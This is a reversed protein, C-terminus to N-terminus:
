RTNVTFYLKGTNYDTGGYSTQDCYNVFDQDLFYDKKSITIKVNGSVSVNEFKSTLGLTIDIKATSFDEEFWDYRVLNGFIEPDWDFVPQSYEHWETVCSFIGCDKWQSRDKSPFSKRLSAFGSPNKSALTVIFYLEPNGDLYHEAERMYNMTTFRARSIHDKGPFRDRDCEDSSSGVEGITGGSDSCEEVSKILYYAHPYYTGVTEVENLCSNELGFPLDKGSRKGEPLAITRENNSIVLILEDPEKRLDLEVKKGNRYAPLIAEQKLDVDPPRYVVMPIKSQIDWDEATHGELSPMALQLLPYSELMNKLMGSGPELDFLEELKIEDDVLADIHLALLFNYDGDFKRILEDKIYKRTEIRGLHTSLAMAMYEGPSKLKDPPRSPLPEENEQCALLILPFLVVLKWHKMRIPNQYFISEIGLM